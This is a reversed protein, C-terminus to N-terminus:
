VRFSLPCYLPLHAEICIFLLLVDRSFDGSVHRHSASHPVPLFMWAPPRPAMVSLEGPDSSPRCCCVFYLWSVSPVMLLPLALLVLPRWQHMFGQHTRTKPPTHVEPRWWVPLLHDHQVHCVAFWIWTVPCSGPLFVGSFSLSRM